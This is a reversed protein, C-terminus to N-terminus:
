SNEWPDIWAYPDIPPVVIHKYKTLLRLFVVYDLLYFLEERFERKTSKM